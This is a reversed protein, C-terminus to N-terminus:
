GRPLLGLEQSRAIAQTRSHVNLKSYINRTHVKVTNLTLFLRAAIEQNTLGEALLQLVELERESLPEVLESKPVQTKSPAPQEPEIIPFAALLRRVYDPAIGSNLAEYLLRTMSPGEDVFIRIFGGPETLSLAQELTTIAQVTNGQAQRALAQLMLIEIVRSTRGGAEAAELLRLLLRITENLRGQAMLIRALVIYETEHLFPLEGDINLGRERAWQFASELKDQALWIRVQWTAMLNTIWPPVHYQQAINEMKQIAEEVGALDGRTFLVRMLCLHSWGIMAVDRGRETLEVGKKARHIAGDLDNLEALVEGWIALLWGVVITQSLGSENALQLQQRCIEIVRELRGQQRLTVALKMGAILIMYTNGAAKSAELAELRVRYAASLDGVFSCADGLAVIATSRWTLDQAPLYELAQRSYKNMGQVDGRYFALFARIATARGQITMRDSSSLQDQEAPSTETALDPSPDLAKEAAQLSREAADQQGSTFLNWAQLICLHPKSFILEVPLEALWRRLKTHEGRKWIADVHEEILRAARDLAEARLAHEIAQDVFGHAQYWESARIHLTPVQAPHTQHLQRRLLDAFLHHYRYWRREADLPIIFLNAHELYELVEQGSASSNIHLPASSRPPLPSRSFDGKSGQGEAGRSLVADCLSGTLRDLIATQLLFTQVSESQQELVEEILYDLIFHHSGTFSKIFGTVDEQGQMSIAALQLGAIWGETRSELAAIDETSLDLGMVQNLFEAAESATFRLDTARLETLQGRARLRALPLHPDDRTAIVLQMGGPPPPLHDLLFTLADDIPNADILHYDDLVLVCRIDTFSASIENILTTILTEIPPPQPSQLMGQGTRGINPEIQQLASIFYTLFRTPDNDGDDLSLWATRIPPDNQRLWDSVLTTKGFGAPASILTLGATGRLGENLREVLRPRPVISSIPRTPPPYLKTTLIPPSVSVTEPRASGFQPTEWKSKVLKTLAEAMDTATAYRDGPKQALATALVEAVESPVGEPWTKPLTLARFHAMMAAPPTEGSFLKEGILMEYLICGLAYIDSQRTTGRGEWVEPAIYHPTGVVGGGASVSTGAEDILKALGFDSLM